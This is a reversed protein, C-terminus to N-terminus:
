DNWARLQRPLLQRCARAQRLLLLNPRPSLRKARQRKSRRSPAPSPPSNKRRKTSGNSKTIHPFPRRAPQRPHLLRPHFPRPNWLAAPASSHSRKDPVGLELLYDLIERSKVELERALDNIRIKGMGEKLGIQGPDVLTTYLNM